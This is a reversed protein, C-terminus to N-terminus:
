KVQGIKLLELIASSMTKIGTKITTGPVPAMLPSHNSPLPIGTKLSENYKISDASGITFFLAPIAKDLSYYSFDEGTLLPKTNIVNEEGMVKKFVKSIRETLVPDNFNAPYGKLSTVVPM